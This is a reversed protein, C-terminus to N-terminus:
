ELKREQKREIKRDKEIRAQQQREEIGMYESNFYKVFM